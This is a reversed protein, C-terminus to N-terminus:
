RRRTPGAQSRIRCPDASPMLGTVTYGILPGNLDKLTEQEGFLQINSTASAPPVGGFSFLVATTAVAGAVHKIKM